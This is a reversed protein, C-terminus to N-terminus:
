NLTQRGFNLVGAREQTFNLNTNYSMRRILLDDRFKLEKIGIDIGVAVTGATLGVLAGVPGGLSGIKTFSAITMAYGGVRTAVNLINNVKVEGIYDDSIRFSRTIYYKSVDFLDRGLDRAFKIAFTKWAFDSMTKSAKGSANALSDKVNAEKDKKDSVQQAKSTDDVIRIIISETDAM